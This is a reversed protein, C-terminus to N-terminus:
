KEVMRRIRCEALKFFDKFLQNQRISEPGGRWFIFKFEAIRLNTILDFEKGTNGAGLSLSEIMEDPELIHPLVQLIGLSHIVEDIQAAAEKLTLAAELLPSEINYHSLLAVAGKKDCGQFDAEISALKTALWFGKFDNIKNLADLLNM